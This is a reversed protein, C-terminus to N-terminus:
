GPGVYRCLSWVRCDGCHPDDPEAERLQAAVDVARSHDDLLGYQNVESAKFIDPFGGCNTLVSVSDYSDLIDYGCFEFGVDARTPSDPREIISLLNHRTPDLAIRRKLYEFERFFYIKYDAHVNHKWDEDILEALVSPCLMEDTSVLESIHHFGSWEIYSTWPEGCSPGFRMHAAFMHM